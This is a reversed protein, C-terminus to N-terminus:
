RYNGQPDSLLVYTDRRRVDNRGRQWIWRLLQTRLVTDSAATQRFIRIWGGGGLNFLLFFISYIHIEWCACKYKLARSQLNKAKFIYDRTPMWSSIRFRWQSAVVRVKFNVRRNTRSVLTTIFWSTLAVCCQSM